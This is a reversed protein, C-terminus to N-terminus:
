KPLCEAALKLTFASSAWVIIGDPVEMRLPRTLDRLGATSKLEWVQKRSSTVPMDRKDAM